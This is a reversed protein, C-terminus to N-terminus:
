IHFQTQVAVIRLQGILKPQDQVDVRSNATDIIVILSAKYAELDECWGLDIFEQYMSIFEARLSDETAIPQGAGFRESTGALKHRPYKTAITSRQVFRIRELTEPTNINLYSIDAVSAGNEQYQTIQREIYVSGDNGVKYTSIGDWLLLNREGDTWRNAVLPAKLGPLKLTKLPRAPDAALKSAAVIANTAAWIYPPEPATNTAMCTVHPNNRGSGYTSAAAHGGRFATFARCGIQQMPGWRDDLETELAVINTSDTFPMVMWNYWEAGMAAIATTIDPNTTGGAMPVIAAAIGAPTAEDFYNLRVDLDNGIEGAHRATLTVVGAVNGATVPLSTDSTIASVISTAVNTVDDGSAVPVSVRKGAIYLALTGAATAAGTITITGTAAVGAGADDLAIAWVDMFSDIGKITKLMEALMSGRGFAAEAQNGSLIRTPVGEAVAGAALRQGVVVLKFEQPSNGALSNDFEVYVGPLRLSDPIDNFSITEPM